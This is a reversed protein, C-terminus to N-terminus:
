MSPKTSIELLERLISKATAAEKNSGGQWIPGPTHIIYKAPLKFGDTIVAQGQSMGRNEVHKKCSM